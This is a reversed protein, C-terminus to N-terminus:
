NFIQIIKQKDIELQKKLSSIEKFKEEDRIREFFEIEIEKNYIEEEFNFINVEITEDNSKNLTPRTGINLMGDFTKRDLKIKVAYVGKAPILKYWENIKINATPFGITRGIKEGDVVIGKIFYNYGLFQNAAHIEGNLLSFRVKTSSVNVQQIEQAPIEEVEFGYLPSLELLHDFSGERNRGFHHDYGIVLTSVNLQNVLIDRVFETSSLRSFEKSFPHIILHDIGAEKLMHIREDITNLLRLENDDPYLVMRPHPFFTLIVSDADNKKAINKLQEIIVKHGTHVGDFTGITVVTKSTIKFEEISNYVKV